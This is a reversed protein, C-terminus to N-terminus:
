LSSLRAKLKTYTNITNLLSYFVWELQEPYILHRVGNSHRIDFTNILQFLANVDADSIAPQLESRIPELVACLAICASRMHEMNQPEQFFLAKAHNIRGNVQFDGTAIEQSVLGFMPMHPKTRKVEKFGIPTLLVNSYNVEGTFQSPKGSDYKILGEDRHKEMIREFEKPEQCGILSYSKTSSFPMRKYERGGNDYIYELLYAARDEFTEISAPNINM